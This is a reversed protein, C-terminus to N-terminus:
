QLNAELDAISTDIKQKVSEYSSVFPKGDMIAQFVATGSGGFNFVYNADLYVSDYIIDLMEAAEESRAVKAFLMNDYAAPRVHKNSMYAMAEMMFGTRDPDAITKPVGIYGATWTNVSTRYNEQQEDWKPLPLFGFDDEMDRFKLILSTMSNGYFLAQGAHFMPIPDDMTFYNDKISGFIDSLKQIATVSNDGGLDVLIKGDEDVTNLTFGCGIYHCLSTIETRVHAYGVQDANTMKGDGDLDLTYQLCLEGFKDLTWTGERVLSYLDNNQDSALKMNFGIAYPINYYTPTIDGTTFLLKGGVQLNTNAYTSWWKQTLDITPLTNIDLLMGGTGLTKLTNSITHVVMDYLPDGAQVLNKVDTLIADNEYPTTVIKVNYTEELLQDRTYLADNIAEGTQEGLSFATNIGAMHFDAGGFDREGLIDTYETEPLTEAAITEGADATTEGTQGADSCGACSLGSVLMALLLLLATCKKM